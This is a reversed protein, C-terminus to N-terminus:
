TTEVAGSCGPAGDKATEGRLTPPVLGAGGFESRMAEGASESKQSRELSARGIWARGVAELVSKEMGVGHLGAVPRVEPMRARKLGRAPELGGGTAALIVRGAAFWECYLCKGYINGEASVDAPGRM